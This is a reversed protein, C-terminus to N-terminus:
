PKGRWAEALFEEAKTFKYDPLLRNWEDSVNLAGASIGLLIGSVMMASLADFEEPSFSSHGTKPLWSANPKGAKLDDARLKDVAFSGGVYDPILM